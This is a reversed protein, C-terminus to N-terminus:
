NTAVLKWSNLHQWWHAEVGSELHKFDWCHEFHNEPSRHRLTKLTKELIDHKKENSEGGRLLQRLM